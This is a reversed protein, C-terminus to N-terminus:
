VNWLVRKEKLEPTEKVDCTGQRGSQALGNSHNVTCWMTYGIIRELVWERLTHGSQTGMGVGQKTRALKIEWERATSPVHDSLDVM